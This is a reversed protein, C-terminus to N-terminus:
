LKPTTLSVIMHIVGRLFMGYVNPSPFNLVSMDSSFIVVYLRFSFLILDMERGRGGKM